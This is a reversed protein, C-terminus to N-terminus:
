DMGRKKKKNCKLKFINICIFLFRLFENNKINLNCMRNPPVVKAFKQFKAIREEENQPLLVILQAEEVNIMM